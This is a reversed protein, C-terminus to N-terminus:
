DISVLRQHPSMCNGAIMLKRNITNALQNVLIRSSAMSMIVTDTAFEDTVSGLEYSTL